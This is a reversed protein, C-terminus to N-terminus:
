CSRNLEKRNDCKGVQEEHGQTQCNAHSLNHALLNQYLTQLQSAASRADFRNRAVALGEQSLRNWGDPSTALSKLCLYLSHHDNPRAYLAADGAVESTSGSHTTVIPLGMSMAEMFVMGWQEQWLPTIRSPVVLVDAEGYHRLVEDYPVFPIETLADGLGYREIIRAHPGQSPTIGLFTLHLDIDSLEKDQKLLWLAYLLEEVGKSRAKRGAFLMRFRKPDLPARKVLEPLAMGPGIVSIRNEPVGELLLTTRARESVAVYHDASDMVTRKAREVFPHNRMRRAINEWVTVVHKYGYRQKRRAVQLSVGGSLEVTHVIKAGNLHKDIGLIREWTPWCRDLGNSAVKAMLSPLCKVAQRTTSVLTLANRGGFSDASLIRLDFDACLPEYHPLIWISFSSGFALVVHPKDQQKMATNM